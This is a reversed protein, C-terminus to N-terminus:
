AKQMVEVTVKVLVPVKCAECLHWSSAIWDTGRNDGKTLKGNAKQYKLPYLTQKPHKPCKM